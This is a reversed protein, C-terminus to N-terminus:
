TQNSLQAVCQVSPVIHMDSHTEDLDVERESSHITSHHALIIDDESDSEVASSSVDEPPVSHEPLVHNIVLRISPWSNM